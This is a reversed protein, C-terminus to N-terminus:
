LMNRVFRMGPLQRVAGKLEMALLISLVRGVPLGARESLTDVHLPEMGIIDFLAPEDGSLGFDPRGPRDGFELDLGKLYNKLYPFLDVLIDEAGEVLKAGKKLLTNTGKSNPLGVSGPVAYVERGQDLSCSATILSGSDDTAEMVLTGLSIGSIIRNRAPFNAPLPQVGPPYETVVAGKGAIRDFLARNESPYAVDIGCGLV